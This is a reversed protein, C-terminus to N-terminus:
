HDGLKSRPKRQAYTPCRLCFAPKWRLRPGTHNVWIPTRGISWRMDGFSRGSSLLCCRGCGKEIVEGVAAMKQNAHHQHGDDSSDRNLLSDATEDLNQGWHQIARFFLDKLRESDILSAPVEVIHYSPQSSSFGVVVKAM